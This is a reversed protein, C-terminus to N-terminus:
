DSRPVDLEGLVAREEITPLFKRVLALLVEPNTPKPLVHAFLESGYSRCEEPRATHAIVPVHRTVDTAKLLRTAEFGALIPMQMDMVIVAPRCNHAALLGDLGNVATVVDLDAGRLSIAILDRTDDHDEVVLVRRLGFTAM